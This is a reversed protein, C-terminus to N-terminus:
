YLRERAKNVDPRLLSGPGNLQRQRPPPVGVRRLFGFRIQEPSRAFSPVAIRAATRAAATQMVAQYVEIGNVGLHRRAVAVGAEEEASVM